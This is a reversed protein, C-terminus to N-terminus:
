PRDWAAPWDDFEAAPAGDIFLTFMPEEPFDGTGIRFRAGDVRADYPFLPNGTRRWPVATQALRRARAGGPRRPLPLPPPDIRRTGYPGNPPRVEVAPRDPFRLSALLANWATLAAATEAPSSSAGDGARAVATVSVDPDHGDGPTGRREWEFRVLTAAAPDDAPGARVESVVEEGDLTGAAKPGVRVSRARADSRSSLLSGLTERLGVRQAEEWREVLSPGDAPESRSLTAVSLEEFAPHDTFTARVVERGDPTRAVAGHRLYLWDAEGYRPTGPLVYAGLVDLARQLAPEAVEESAPGRVVLAVPGVDAVVEWRVLVDFTPDRHLVARAWPLPGPDAERAGLYTGADGDPTGRLTEPPDARLAGQVRDAWARDRAADRAPGDPPLAPPWPHEAVQVDQHTGGGSTPALATPAPLEVTLRGVLFTWAPHSTSGATARRRAVGM